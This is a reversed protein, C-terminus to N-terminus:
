EELLSTQAARPGREFRPRRAERFWGQRGTQSEVYLGGYPYRETWDVWRAATEPDLRMLDVMYDRDRPESLRLAVVDTSQASVERSVNAPRQTTSVITLAVHRSRRYLTRLDASAAGAPAILDVEDVLLAAGGLALVPSERLTPVPILWDVLAPLDARDLPATITWTGRPALERVAAALETVDWAVTDSADIWEGTQDILIRRPMHALWGSWALSSKGAGSQGAVFLRRSPPLAIM